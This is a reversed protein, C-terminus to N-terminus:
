EINSELGPATFGTMKNNIYDLYKGYPGQMARRDSIGDMVYSFASSAFEGAAKKNQLQMSLEEQRKALSKNANYEEAYKLLGLHNGQNERKVRADEAAFKLLANSRNADLVGSGALFKARDGATGRVMNDLGTRYAMDIDDRIAREEEPTFGIKSLQESNYMYQKFAASLEPYDPVNIKKMSDKYGKAGMVGAIISSVGGLGEVLGKLDGLTSREKSEPLTEDTQKTAIPAPTKLSEDYENREAETEFIRSKDQSLFGLGSTELYKRYEEDSLTDVDVDPLPITKPDVEEETFEPSVLPDPKEEIKDFDEPTITGPFIEAVTKGPFFRQVYLQRTEEDGLAINNYRDRYKTKLIELTQPNFEYFESKELFDKFSKFGFVGPDDVDLSNSAEFDQLQKYAKRYKGFDLKGTSQLEGMMSPNGEAILEYFYDKSNKGNLLTVDKLTGDENYFTSLPIKTGPIVSNKLFENYSQNAELNIQNEAVKLFQSDEFMDELPTDIFKILRKDLREAYEEGKVTQAAYSLRDALVQKELGLDIIDQGITNQIEQKLGRFFEKARFEDVSITAGIPQQTVPTKINEINENFRLTYQLLIEDVLRKDENNLNPKENYLNTGKKLSKARDLFKFVYFIKENM